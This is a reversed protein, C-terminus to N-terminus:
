RLTSLGSRRMAALDREVGTRVASRSYTAILGHRQFDCGANGYHALNAGLLPTPALLAAALALRM